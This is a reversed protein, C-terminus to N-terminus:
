ATKREKRREVLKALEGAATQYETDRGAKKYEAMKRRLDGIQDDIPSSEGVEVVVDGFARVGREIFDELKTGSRCILELDDFKKGAPDVYAFAAAGDIAKRIEAEKYGERLRAIVRSAREATLKAQKHDCKEQWYAFLRGVAAKQILQANMAPPPGPMGPLTAQTGSTELSRALDRIINCGDEDDGSAFAGIAKALVAILATRDLSDQRFAM